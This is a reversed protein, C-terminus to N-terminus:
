DQKKLDELLRLATPTGISKLYAYEQERIEKGMLGSNIAFIVRIGCQIYLNHYEDQNIDPTMPISFARIPNSSLDFRMDAKAKGVIITILILIFLKKM